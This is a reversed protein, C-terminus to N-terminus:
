GERYVSLVNRFDRVSIILEVAGRVTGRRINVYVIPSM